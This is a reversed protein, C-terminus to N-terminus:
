RRHPSDGAALEVAERDCVVLPSDALPLNEFCAEGSLVVYQLPYVGGDLLDVLVPQRLGGDPPTLTVRAPQFRTAMPVGLWYVLATRGSIKHKLQYTRIAPAPSAALSGAAIIDFRPPQAAAVPEWRDDLLSSLHAVAHAAPKREWSGYWYLGKRNIGMQGRNPGGELMGPYDHLVFYISVPMGLAADSLLRRLVWKAHKTEDWAGGYGWGATDASSPFGCESQWLVPSRGRTRLLEQARRIAADQAEPLAGYPHVSWHDFVSAGAGGLFAELYDSPVNATSGALIVAEPQVRRIIEAAAKVMRGYDKVSTPTQWFWPGNPENWIEWVKVHPQYRRVLAELFRHWAQRVEPDDLLKAADALQRKNPDAGAPMYLRNGGYIQIVPTIKRRVLGTVVDDLRHSSTNWAYRGREQEIRDWDPVLFAWKVGLASLHELRQEIALPHEDAIWHCSVGWRSGNIEESRRLRLRGLRDLGRERAPGAAPGTDRHFGSEPVVGALGGSPKPPSSDAALAAGALLFALVNSLICGQDLPSCRFRSRRLSLM